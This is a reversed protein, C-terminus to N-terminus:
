QVASSCHAHALSQPTTCPIFNRFKREENNEVYPAVLIELAAMVNHMPESELKKKTRQAKNEEGVFNM